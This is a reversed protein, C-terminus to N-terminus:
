RPKKLGYIRLGPIRGGTIEQYNSLFRFDGAAGGWVLYYDIGYKELQRKLETKSVNKKQVGYYKSDLHYSLFLSGAWSTNSAINRGPTVRSKLVESLGYIGKGRNAYSKLGQYAPIAFSLFFIILLVTRRTKTFFNSEFLRLRGLVYGGMLMLMIFLLWIYRANVTILSYGGAFIVIAVTPFLVEAPMTKINFRRLWFLVYAIAVVVSLISFKVFMNVM